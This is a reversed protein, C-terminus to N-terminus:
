QDFRIEQITQSTSTTKLYIYVRYTGGETSMNGIMYQDANEKSKGSHMSAYGSPRKASFFAKIAEAAKAKEYTNEEDGISVQVKAGFYQTLAAVDGANLARSIGEIVPNGEGVIVEAPSVPAALAQASAFGLTLVFLFHKM